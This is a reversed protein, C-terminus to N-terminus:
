RKRAWGDLYEDWENQNVNRTGSWECVHGNSCVRENASNVLSIHKNDLRLLRSTTTTFASYSKYNILKITQAFPFFVWLSPFHRDINHGNSHVSYNNMENTPKQRASCMLIFELKTNVHIWFPASLTTDRISVICVTLEHTCQIACFLDLRLLKIAICVYLRRLDCVFRVQCQSRLATRRPM